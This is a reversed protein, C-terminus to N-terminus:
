EPTPPIAATLANINGRSIDVDLEQWAYQVTCYNPRAVEGHVEESWNGNEEELSGFRRPNWSRFPCHWSFKQKLNKWSFLILTTEFKKLFEHLYKCTLTCWQYWRCWCNIGTSFKGSTDFCWYCVAVPIFSAPRLTVLVPPMCYHFCYWIAQM